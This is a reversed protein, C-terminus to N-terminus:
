ERIEVRRTVEQRGWSWVIVIVGQPADLISDTMPIRAMLYDREGPDLKVGSWAAKSDSYLPNGNMDQVAMAVNGMWATNGHNTAYCQTILDGEEASILINESSLALVINSQRSRDSPPDHLFVVVLLSLLMVLLFFMNKIEKGIHKSRKKRGVRYGIPREKSEPESTKEKTEIMALSEGCEQCFRADEKNEAGCLPCIKKARKVGTKKVIRKLM